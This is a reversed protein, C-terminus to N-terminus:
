ARKSRGPKAIAGYVAVAAGVFAAFGGVQLYPNVTRTKETRSVSDVKGIISVSSTGENMIDIWYTSTGTFFQNTFSTGIYENLLTKTLPNQSIYSVAVTISANSSLDFQFYWGSQMFKFWFTSNQPDPPPTLTQNLSWTQEVADEHYTERYSFMALAVGVV